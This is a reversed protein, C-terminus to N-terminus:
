GGSRDLREWVSRLPLWERENKEVDDLEAPDFLAAARAYLADEDELVPTFFGVLKGNADRVEVPGAAGRLVGLLAGDATLHGM